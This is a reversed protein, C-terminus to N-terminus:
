KPPAFEMKIRECGLGHKMMCGFVVKIAVWNRLLTQFGWLAGSRMTFFLPSRLDLSKTPINSTVLQHYMCFLLGLLTESHTLGVGYESVHTWMMLKIDRYGHDM